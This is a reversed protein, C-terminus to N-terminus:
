SDAYVLKKLVSRIPQSIWFLKSLDASDYCTRGLAGSYFELGIIAFITVAFLLLLAINSLPGIAKGISTMVVQLGTLLSSFINNYIIWINWTGNVNENVSAWDAYKFFPFYQIM